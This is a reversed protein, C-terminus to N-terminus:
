FHYRLLRISQLKFEFTNMYRDTSLEHEFGVAFCVVILQVIDCMVKKKKWALFTELTVPTLNVGLNARETEILEEISIEEKQEDMAKRDKKLVFGPPLCHRYLCKDGGNPCVWFWGYLGKDVAELFYKCVIETRNTQESGHKKQVVDELKAQDWTDMTDNELADERSDTYISKKESKRELTLDHSFKCKDGKSCQGQKFFVCLVSKPDAGKSVNQVPRFLSGM